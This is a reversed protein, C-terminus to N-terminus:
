TTWDTGIRAHLRTVLDDPNLTQLDSRVTSAALVPRGEGDCDMEHMGYDPHYRCLTGMWEYKPAEFISFAVDVDESRLAELVAEAADSCEGVSREEIEFRCVDAPRDQRARAIQTDTCVNEDFAEVAARIQAVSLFAPLSMAYYTRDGM